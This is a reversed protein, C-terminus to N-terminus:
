QEGPGGRIHVASERMKSSQGTGWRDGRRPLHGVRAGTCLAGGSERLWDPNTKRVGQERWQPTCWGQSGFCQSETSHIHVQAFAHSYDQLGGEKDGEVFTQLVMRSTREVKQSQANTNAQLDGEMHGM